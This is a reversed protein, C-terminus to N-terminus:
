TYLHVQHLAFHSNTVETSRFLEIKMCDVCAINQLQLLIIIVM